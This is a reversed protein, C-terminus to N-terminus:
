KQRRRGFMLWALLAVVVLGIIGGALGPTM